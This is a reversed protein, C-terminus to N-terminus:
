CRLPERLAARSPARVAPAKEKILASFDTIEKVNPFDADVHSGWHGLCNSCLM